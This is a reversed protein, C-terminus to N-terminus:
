VEVVDINHIAKMLKKKLRYVDTSVGKTDEVILRGDRQFTADAVYHCIPQGNVDLPYRVQRKLDSIVGARQMLQLEAWRRAEKTSAFFMGDITVPKARYKNPRAGRWGIESATM